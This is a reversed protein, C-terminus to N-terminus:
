DSVIKKSKKEDKSLTSSIGTLISRFCYHFLFREPDRKYDIIGVRVEEGKGPNSDLIRRNAIYSFLRAKLSATDDSRKDKVTIVLGHYLMTIKGRAKVNDAVFSFNMEDIKGSAYIFANKELFPNLESFDLGSLSGNVSFTNNKDFIKSKLLIALKGKEMLRADAKLELSESKTKYLTDNTLNYLRANIESIIIIGPEKSEEGHVNYTIKGKMLAISDIRFISPINYIMDQFAPKKKHLFEKRKDRFVNMNMEGIEVYSSELTMPRFYSDVYFDHVNIKSISAEICNKQFKFRSTFDYDKFKPRIFLSDIALTNLTSSYNVGRILCSYMSDSSVMNLEGAKFEFLTIIRPYLTDMKSVQLGFIRLLGEKVSYNQGTSDNEMELNFQDFLISGIGIKLPSLIPSMLRGSFPIKGNFSSKSIIVEDVYINRKIVAKLINIGTFKVSGIEGSYGQYKPSPIIKVHKLELESRIIDINVKKIDIIYDYGNKLETQIERGLWPEIYIKTILVMLATLILLLLIIKLLIKKM